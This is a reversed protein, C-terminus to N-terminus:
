APPLSIRFTTGDTGTSEVEISGGNAVILERAVTLGIGSGARARSRDARYFREFVFPLDEPEIGPGTDTVRLEPGESVHVRVEGGRPSHQIANAVVNRLARTLQGRDAVTAVAEGEVSARVAGDQLLAELGAVTERALDLLVIREPQRQLPAAEAQTLEGLQAIVSSLGAAAARAKDLQAADAPVVGDVMAQIQSELVTAPTALDHALDSAARRRLVESRELRDAMDNFADALEASEADAGGSARAGLDGAGLRRAAIAVQRLPRTLRDSLFAAAALLAVVAVIGVLVLATNFARLFPAAPSPVAIEISGGGAAASLPSTLTQAEADARLHSAELRVTGDADLISVRGRSQRAIQDLLRQIGRGDAGRELGQEVVAVALDLRQQEGPALTEDLSRSAARNVVVGAVLLVVLLVAALLAALRVALSRGRM